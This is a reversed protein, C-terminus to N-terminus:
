AVNTRLGLGRGVEETGVVVLLNRARSLAVYLLAADTLHEELEVLVVASRELGKFRRVSEVLVAGEEDPWGQHLRFSGAQTVDRLRTPVKAAHTLSRGTLVVIDALRLKEDHVLHHLVRGLERPLHELDPLRHFRVAPGEPGDSVYELGSYYRRVAAHIEHSNRLNRTLPVPLLDKPLTTGRKFISQNDDHFVYIIGHDPDAQTLQLPEWSTDPFDQGEDVVIADYRRDPLRDVAELLLEPLRQDWFQQDPHEPMAPLLGAQEAFSRCLDHFNLVDPAPAATAAQTRLWDALARNFCTLLVSFGEAALRRAKELALVTKGTGAGGQVAVRRAFRMLDLVHLQEDTLRAIRSENERLRSALTARLEVPAALVDDLTQLMRPSLCGPVARPDSSYAYASEVFAAIRELDAEFLVVARDLDPRQLLSVCFDCHPFAVAYGMPLWVGDFGPLSRLKALFGAKNRRLQAVPDDIESTVGHRDTTTWTDRHPNYEVGGGKVELLLFGRDPHAIVFDIEGDQPTEGKRGKSLWRVSHYVRYSDPLESQLWDFLLVEASWRADSRVDPSLSDPHMRAM